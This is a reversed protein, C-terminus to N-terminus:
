PQVLARDPACDLEGRLIRRRYEITRQVVEEVSERVHLREGNTLTLLTDPTSEVYAIVEANIVVPAQNFRTLPIM